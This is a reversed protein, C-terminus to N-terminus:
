RCCYAFPWLLLATLEPELDLELEVPELEVPEPEPEELEPEPEELEPEPEELEPEEPEELEVELRGSIKVTLHDLHIYMLPM